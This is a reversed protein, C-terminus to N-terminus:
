ARVFWSILPNGFQLILPILSSPSVSYSYITFKHYFATLVKIVIGIVVVISFLFFDLAWLTELFSYCFVFKKLLSSAAQSYCFFVCIFNVKFDLWINHVCVYLVCVYTGDLRGGEPNASQSGTSKM